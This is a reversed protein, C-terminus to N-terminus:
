APQKLPIRIVLLAGTGSGDATSLEVTGGLQRIRDNMASLGFGYPVAIAPAGDNYLMFELTPGDMKLSFRFRRGGGHKIGNTLGEQLAHYIIKKHIADLPPLPQLSREVSVGAMRETEDMLENLSGVLDTQSFDNRMLRVASRVDTLGKRVSELASEVKAQAQNADKHLLRKAAELQYAAGTLKHGLIDHIEHALNDREQQIGDKLQDLEQLRENQAKLQKAYAHSQRQIEGAHLALVRGVCLMFIFGSVYVMDVKWYFSYLPWHEYIWVQLSPFENLLSKQVWQLLMIGNGFLVWEMKSDTMYRNSRVISFSVAILVIVLLGQYTTGTMWAYFSQDLWAAAACGLFYVLLLRRAWRTLALYGRGFLMELFVIYALMIFPLALPYFYSAASAEFYYDLAESRILCGIGQGLNMLAFALYLYQRRDSAFGFLSIAALFLSVVGLVIRVANQRLIHSFADEANAILLSSSFLRIGPTDNVIRVHLESDPRIPVLDFQYNTNIRSRPDDMNFRLVSQRDVFVEYRNIGRAWLNPSTKGSGPSSSRIWYVGAYRGAEESDLVDRLPRWRAQGDDALKDGRVPLEGLYAETDTIEDILSSSNPFRPIGWGGNILGTFLAFCAFLVAMFGAYKAGIKMIRMGMAAM